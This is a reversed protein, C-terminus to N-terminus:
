QTKRKAQKNSSSVTNSAIAQIHTRSADGGTEPDAKEDLDQQGLTNATIDQSPRCISCASYGKARAEQLDIAVKGRSLSKCSTLHYKTDTKTAYVTQSWSLAPFLSIFGLLHLVYKKIM